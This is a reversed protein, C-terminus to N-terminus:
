GNEDDDDGALLRGQQGRLQWTWGSGTTVAHPAEACRSRLVPLKSEDSAPARMEGRLGGLRAFVAVGM